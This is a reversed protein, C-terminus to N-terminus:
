AMWQAQIYRCGCPHNRVISFKVRKGALKERVYLAHRINDKVLRMLRGNLLDKPFVATRYAHLQKM